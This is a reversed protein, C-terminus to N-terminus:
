PTREPRTKTRDMPYGTASLPEIVPFGGIVAGRVRASRGARREASGAGSALAMAAARARSATSVLGGPASPRSSANASHSAPQRPLTASSRTCTATKAPLWPTVARPTDANGASTVTCITAFKWAPPAAILWNDRAKPASIDTCGSANSRGVASKVWLAAMVSASNISATKTPHCATSGAASRNMAPSIPIPLVVEAAAIAAASNPPVPQAPRPM